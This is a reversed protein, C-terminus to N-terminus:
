PGNPVRVSLQLAHMLSQLAKGKSAGEITATKPVVMQGDATCIAFRKTSGDASVCLAPEGPALEPGEIRSARRWPGDFTVRKISPNKHPLYCRQYTTTDWLRGIVRDYRIIRDSSWTEWNIHRDEPTIKSALTHEGSLNSTQALPQPSVFSGEEIAKRLMKAGLPTLEQLLQDANANESILVGPAPTQDVIVGHDFKTPHMTQLSVGTHSRNQLLAQQIPAAGRLDPLLSPHVNLGGYTAGTLIRSPVLLGFSVAIVLDVPQPPSWGKFTDIQHINLGLNIAFPKIPVELTQKLGRGVKKDPRCVVDISAIKSRDKQQLSYVEWLSAASFQDAGCFLVRLPRHRQEAGTSWRIQSSTYSKVWASPTAPRGRGLFHQRFM